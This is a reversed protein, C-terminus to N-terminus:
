FAHGITLHSQVGEDSTALDLRLVIADFLARVGGGYSHHLEKFLLSNNSPSVQGVEYFVALQVSDLVGHVLYFDLMKGIPIGYRVEVATFFGFRDSWRGQPYGRLPPSGGPIIDASDEGGDARSYITHWALFLQEALPAYFTVGLQQVRLSDSGGFASSGGSDEGFLSKSPAPLTTSYSVRLGERPDIVDDTLDASFIFSAGHQAFPIENGDADFDFGEFYSLMYAFNLRQEFFELTPMILQYDFEATIPITFDPSNRGPVYVELNGINLHAYWYDVKLFSLGTPLNQFAFAQIEIDSDDISQALTAALDIGTDGLNSASSILAVFVGVGPISAVAPIILYENPARDEYSRRREPPFGQATAALVIMCMVLSGLATLRSVISNMQKPFRSFLTGRPQERSNWGTLGGGDELSNREEQATRKSQTIRIHIGVMERTLPSRSSGKLIAYYPFITAIYWGHM